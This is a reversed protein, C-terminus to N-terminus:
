LTQLFAIMARLEEDSLRLKKLEHAFQQPPEQYHQMVDLLTERSGDHFYPATKSVNRLTPTKFAGELPIHADRNLFRLEYCEEAAADSYPGLCNFEDMLVANLGFVRGFDLRQGSFNGTGINHFGGNSLMPGNHCQLCQTREADIFLKAGAQEAHSYIEQVATSGDNELTAVFQDFRSREPLLTREYAAITKGLNAYVRNILSKTKRSLRFWANQKAIDGFPGAEEPLDEFNLLAPFPGFIAEYQTRYESDTAVQRIVALRSSGMEEAAEFPILAQSWLSDRRGDWYFWSQYASGVITPANRMTEGIGISRPLGDTFYREPQHCSACSLKGNGSLRTDFFLQKGLEVALPDDAVDNSPSDPPANSASLSLSKLIRIEQETWKATEETSAAVVVPLFLVICLLLRM